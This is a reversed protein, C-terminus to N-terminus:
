GIQVTPEGVAAKAGCLCADTTRLAPKNGILVTTSGSPFASSKLHTQPPLVCIHMDGAVAAPKGGILVTPSGPGTITGGHTTTDGVRAAAPM